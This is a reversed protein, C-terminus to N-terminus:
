TGCIVYATLSGGSYFANVSYNVMWGTAPSGGTPESDMLTSDGPNVDTTDGGGGIAYKGAPCSASAAYAGFNGLVFTTATGIV